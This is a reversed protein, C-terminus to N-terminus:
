SLEHHALYTCPADQTELTPQDAARLWSLHLKCGTCICKYSSTIIVPCCASFFCQATFAIRVLTKVSAQIRVDLDTVQKTVLLLGGHM